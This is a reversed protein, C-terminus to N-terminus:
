SVPLPQWEQPNKRWEHLSAMTKESVDERKFVEVLLRTYDTLTYFPLGQAEFQQRAFDFGYTLIAVVGLVHVGAERLVEAAQLASQGTSIIDEVIVALQGPVIRGEIQNERGHDKPKARVYLMPLEFEQALLAAQPIGATAVGVVVEAQPFYARILHGFGKTIQRRIAPYSITLRSDCYIPSQWGSSWRFAQEPSFQVAQVDLLARAVEGALALPISQEKDQPM